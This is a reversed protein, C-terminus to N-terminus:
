FTVKVIDDKSRGSVSVKQLKSLPYKNIRFDNFRLKQEKM